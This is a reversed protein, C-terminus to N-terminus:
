TAVHFHEVYIVFCSVIQLYSSFWSFHILFISPLLVIIAINGRKEIKTDITHLPQTIKM